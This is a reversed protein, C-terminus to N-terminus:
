KLADLKQTLRDLEGFLQPIVAPPKPNVLFFRIDIRRNAPEATPTDHSIVPRHEGYGSIGFVPQGKQNRLDKLPSTGRDGGLITEFTKIARMGSLHLNNAFPNAKGLPINDTHGEIFVADLTGPNWQREECFSPRQAKDISGAYCPLHRQLVRALKTLTEEGGPAFQAVGLPFLVENPLRLIGHNPDIFVQVNEVQLDHHIDTLLQHLLQSTKAMHQDLDRKLNAALDRLEVIGVELKKLKESQEEHLKKIAERERTAKEYESRFDSESNGMNFSFIILIVIFVYLLASMVDSISISYDHATYQPGRTERRRQYM